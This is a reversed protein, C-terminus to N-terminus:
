PEVKTIQSRDCAAVLDALRGRGPVILHPAIEALPLLVFGREHMRPHPITLEPLAISEDGYLIIDLDLPRPANRFSRRRGHRAEIAILERMLLPAALVTRLRAVANFFDPQEAYGWPASRYLSSAQLPEGAALAQLEGLAGAIHARPDDINAGLAIYADVPM